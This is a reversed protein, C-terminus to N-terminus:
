LKQVLVRFNRDYPRNLCNWDLHLAELVPLIRDLFFEKQSALVMPLTSVGPRVLASNLEGLNWDFSVYMGDDTSSNSVSVMWEVAYEGDAPSNRRFSIKTTLTQQILYFANGKRKFGLGALWPAIASVFDKLEM